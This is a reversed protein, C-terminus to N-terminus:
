EPADAVVPARTTRLEAPRAAYLALLTAVKEKSVTNGILIGQSLLSEIENNEM